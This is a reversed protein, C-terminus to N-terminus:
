AHKSGQFVAQPLLVALLIRSVVLRKEPVSNLSQEVLFQTSNRGRNREKM